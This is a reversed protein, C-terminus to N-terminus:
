AAVGLHALLQPGLCYAAYAPPISQTLFRWPMRGPTQGMAELGEEVDRATTGGNPVHDAPRGYVGVPTSSDCACGPSLLLANSEFLRHRKVGLGFARGCLEVAELMPAGPVNELTWLGGTRAAWAELAERTEDVLDDYADRERGQAVALARTRSYAHCPPSAHIVAFADPDVGPLEGRIAALADGVIPDHPNYRLAAPDRDVSTVRFGALTYGDGMGGACAFADLLRPASM